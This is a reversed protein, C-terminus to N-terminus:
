ISRLCCINVSCSCQNEHKHNIGQELLCSNQYFVHKQLTSYTLSPKRLAVCLVRVWSLNKMMMKMNGYNDEKDGGDDFNDLIDGNVDNYYDQYDENDSDDVNEGEDTSEGDVWIDGDDRDDSEDM